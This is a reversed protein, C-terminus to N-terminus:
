YPPQLAPFMPYHRVNTTVLEADLEIAAAAILYDVDDIGSHSPRFARALEGARRAVAEDVAFWSLAEAAREIVELEEPRAGALLEFRVVESAGGDGTAAVGRVLDRADAQGRLYDVLVTTDLLRL